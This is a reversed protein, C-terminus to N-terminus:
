LLMIVIPLERQVNTYQSQGDGGDSERLTIPDRTPHSLARDGTVLVGLTCVFCRSLAQVM